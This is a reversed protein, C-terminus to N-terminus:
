TERGQTAITVQPSYRTDVKHAANLLAALAPTNDLRAAASVWPALLTCTLGSCCLMCETETALVWIGLLTRTWGCCCPGLHFALVWPGTAARSSKYCLLCKMCTGLLSYLARASWGWRKWM